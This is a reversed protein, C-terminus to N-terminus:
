SLYVIIFVSVYCLSCSFSLQQWFSAVCIDIEWVHQSCTWDTREHTGLSLLIFVGTRVGPLGFVVDYFSSCSRLSYGCRFLFWLLHRWLTWSQVQGTLGRVACMHSLSLSDGSGARSALFERFWFILRAFIFSLSLSIVYFEGGRWLLFRLPDPVVPSYEPCRSFPVFGVISSCSVGSASTWRSSSPCSSAIWIM